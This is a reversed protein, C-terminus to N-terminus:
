GIDSRLSQAAMGSEVGHQRSGSCSLHGTSLGTLSPLDYGVAGATPGPSAFFGLGM